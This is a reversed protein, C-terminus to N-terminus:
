IIFLRGLATTPVIGHHGIFTTQPAEFLYIQQHTLHRLLSSYFRHHVTEIEQEGFTNVPFQECTIVGIAKITLINPHAAISGM